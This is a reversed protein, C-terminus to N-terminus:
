LLLLFIRLLRVDDRHIDTSVKKLKARKWAPSSVRCHKYKEGEILYIDNHVHEFSQSLQIAGSGGWGTLFLAKESGLSFM